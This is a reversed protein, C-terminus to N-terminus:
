ALKWTTLRCKRQVATARRRLRSATGADSSAARVRMECPSLCDPSRFGFHAGKFESSWASIPRSCIGRLSAFDGFALEIRPTSLRFVDGNRLAVGIDALAVRHAVAGHLVVEDADLNGHRGAGLADLYRGDIGADDDVANANTPM